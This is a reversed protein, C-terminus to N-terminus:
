SPISGKKNKDWSDHKVYNDRFQGATKKPIWRKKSLVDSLGGASIRSNEDYIIECGLLESLAIWENQTAFRSGLIRQPADESLLAWEGRELNSAALYLTPEEQKPRIVVHYEEKKGLNWAQALDMAVGWLGSKKNKSAPVFKIKGEAFGIERFGDLLHFRYAGFGEAEFRRLDAPTIFIPAESSSAWEIAAAFEPEPIRHPFIVYQVDKILSEEAQSPQIAVRGFRGCDLILCGFILNIHSRQAESM